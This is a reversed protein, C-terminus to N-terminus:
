SARGGVLRSAGTADAYGWPQVDPPELGLGTLMACIQERHISGHHFVQVLVIGTPCEYTGLDFTLARDLNFEESALFSDWLQEAEDIRLALEDLDVVQERAEDNSWPEQYDELHRKAAAVWPTQPGGLVALYSGETTVLHNFTEIINGYTATAPATLQEPTLTRCVDLLTKTAWVNHRSFYLLTENMTRELAM